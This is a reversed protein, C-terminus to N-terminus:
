VETIETHSIKEFYRQSDKNIIISFSDLVLILLSAKTLNRVICQWFKLEKDKSKVYIRFLMKGISQKLLYELVAWYLISLAAIVLSIYLLPLIDKASNVIEYAAIFDKESSIDLGEVVKNFPLVIIINIIIRDLIYAFVRKWVSPKNKNLLNIEKKSDGM